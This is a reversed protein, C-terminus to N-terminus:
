LSSLKLLLSLFIFYSVFHVNLTRLLLTMPAAIANLLPALMGLLLHGAMHITFDAHSQRSLPGIVAIARRCCLFDDAVLAM